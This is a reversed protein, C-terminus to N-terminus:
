KVEEAKPFIVEEPNPAEVKNGPALIVGKMDSPKPIVNMMTQSTSPISNQTSPKTIKATAPKAAIEKAKDLRPIFQPPKPTAPMKAQAQLNPQPARPMYSYSPINNGWNGSNWSPTTNNNWNMSPMNWNSGRSNNNGWNMSPMNWNNGQSNGFNSGFSRNNGWNMNPMNWSNGYGNGSNFNPMNWGNSGQANNNGWNMNPMNWNSGNSNGNGMNFNPTSFSSSNNNASPAAISIFPISVLAISLILKKM